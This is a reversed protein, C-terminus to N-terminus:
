LERWQRTSSPSGAQQADTINIAVIIVVIGVVIILCLHLRLLLFVVTFHHVVLRDEHIAATQRCTTRSIHM